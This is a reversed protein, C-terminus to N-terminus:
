GKKLHVTELFIVLHRFEQIEWVMWGLESEVGSPKPLTKKFGSCKKSAKNEDSMYVM